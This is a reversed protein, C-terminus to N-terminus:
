PLDIVVVVLILIGQLLSAPSSPAGRPTLCIRRYQYVTGSADGVNSPPRGNDVGGPQNTITMCGGDAEVAGNDVGAGGSRDGVNHDGRDKIIM